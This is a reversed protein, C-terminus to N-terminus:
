APRAASVGGDGPRTDRQPTGERTAVSDRLLLARRRYLAATRENAKAAREHGEAESRYLSGRVDDGGAAHRDARHRALLAHERARVARREARAALEELRAVDLPASRM